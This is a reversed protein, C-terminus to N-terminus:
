VMLCLGMAVWLRVYLSLDLTVVLTAMPAHSLCHRGGPRTEERWPLAEQAEEM